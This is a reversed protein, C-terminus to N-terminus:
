SQVSQVPSSSSSACIGAENIQTDPTIFKELEEIISQSLKERYNIKRQANKNGSYATKTKGAKANANKAAELFEQFIQYITKWIDVEECPDLNEKSKYLLPKKNFKILIPTKLDFGSKSYEKAVTLIKHTMYIHNKNQRDHLSYVKYEKHVKNKRKCVLTTYLDAIEQLLEGESWKQNSNNM